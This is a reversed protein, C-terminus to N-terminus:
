GCKLVVGLTKDPHNIIKECAKSIEALPFIDTILSKVNLRKEKVLLLIEELNRKTDWQVFVSPYDDGHEWREDHYGPGTRSSPYIDINGLFTPFKLNLEVGGVIVMKGMKHTDPATKMTEVLLNFTSTGEGGFCIFSTDIGYGRSFEITKKVPEEKEINVIKGIGNEIAKELRMDYRDWGIVRAGSIKSLQCIIQGIIGLGVVLINEGIEIKGRRVAHLATAALHCFSAEEFSVEDPIKICLNQPIIAYNTHFAYNGGMCAVKDGEKFNKCGKGIEVIVGSNSYGFPRKEFHSIDPSKRLNKIGGLETGPSILSSYVKVLVEGEKLGPIEEEDIFVDGKYNYCGYIRKREV